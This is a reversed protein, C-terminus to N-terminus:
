KLPTLAHHYDRLLNQANCDTCRRAPGSGEQNMTCGSCGCCHQPQVAISEACSTKTCEMCPLEMKKASIFRLGNQAACALALVIDDRKRPCNSKVHLVRGSHHRISFHLKDPHPKTACVDTGDGANSSGLVVYEIDSYRIFKNARQLMLSNFGCSLYDTKWRIGLGNQEM